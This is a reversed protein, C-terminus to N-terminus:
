TNNTSVITTTIAIYRCNLTVIGEFSHNDTANLISWTVRVLVVLFIM